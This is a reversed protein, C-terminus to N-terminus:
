NPSMHACQIVLGSMPLWPFCTCLIHVLVLNPDIIDLNASRRRDRDLRPYAEDAAAENAGCVTGFGADTKVQLLGVSSLDGAADLLRVDTSSRVGWFVVSILLFDFVVRMM